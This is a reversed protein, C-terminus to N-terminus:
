DPCKVSVDWLMKVPHSGLSSQTGAERGKLSYDSMGSPGEGDEKDEFPGAEGQAQRWLKRLGWIASCEAQARLGVQGVSTAQSVGCTYTGM